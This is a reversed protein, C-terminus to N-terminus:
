DPTPFSDCPDRLLNAPQFYPSPGPGWIHTWPKSSMKRTGLRRWCRVVLKGKGSRLTLETIDVEKSEEKYSRGVVCVCVCVCVCWSPTPSRLMLTFGVSSVSIFGLGMFTSLPWHVWYLNLTENKSSLLYNSPYAQQPVLGRVHIMFIFTNGKNYETYTRLSNSSPHVAPLLHYCRVLGYISTYWLALTFTFKLREAFKMISRLSHTLPHPSHVPNVQNLNPVPSM